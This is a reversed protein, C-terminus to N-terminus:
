VYFLKKVFKEGFIDLVKLFDNNLSNILCFKNIKLSNFLMILVKKSHILFTFKLYVGSLALETITKFLKLLANIKFSFFKNSIKYINYGIHEQSDKYIFHSKLLSFFYKKTNKQIVKFFYNFWRLKKNVLYLVKILFNLSQRNLSKISLYCTM